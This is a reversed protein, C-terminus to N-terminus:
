YICSLPVEAHILYKHTSLIRGQRAQIREPVLSVGAKAVKVEVDVMFETETIPRLRVGRQEAFKPIADFSKKNHLELLENFATTLKAKTAIQEEEPLENLVTTPKAKTVIQEEIVRSPQSDTCSVLIFSFIWLVLLGISKNRMM